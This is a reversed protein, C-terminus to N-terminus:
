LRQKNQRKNRIGKQHKNEYITETKLAWGLVEKLHVYDKHGQNILEILVKDAKFHKNFRRFIGRRLMVDGEKLDATILDKSNTPKRGRGRVM